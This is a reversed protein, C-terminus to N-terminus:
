VKAPPPPPTVPGASSSGVAVSASDTSKRVDRDVHQILLELAAGLFTAGNHDAQLVDGTIRYFTDGVPQGQLWGTTSDM